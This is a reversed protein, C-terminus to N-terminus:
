WVKMPMCDSSCSVISFHCGSWPNFRVDSWRFSKGWDFYGEMRDAWQPQTQWKWLRASKGVRISNQNSNSQAQLSLDCKDRSSCVMAPWVLSSTPFWVLFKGCRLLTIVFYLILDKLDFTSMFKRRANSALSWFVLQSQGILCSASPNFSERGVSQLRLPHVSVYDAVYQWLLASTDHWRSASQWWQPRDWQRGTRWTRWRVIRPM